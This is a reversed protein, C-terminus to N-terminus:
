GFYDDYCTIPGRIAALSQMGTTSHASQERWHPFSGFVVGFQIKIHDIDYTIKALQGNQRWQVGM